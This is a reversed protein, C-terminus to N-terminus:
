SAADARQREREVRMKAAESEMRRGRDEARLLANAGCDAAARVIGVWQGVTFPEVKTVTPMVIARTGSESVAIVGWGKMEDHSEVDAKVKQALGDPAAIWFRHARERWHRNKSTDVSVRRVVTPEFDDPPQSFPAGGVIKPRRRWEHHVRDTGRYGDLDRDDPKHDCRIEVGDHTQIFWEVIRWEKCWDAYSCKIEVAELTYGRSSWLSIVLVDIKTGQRYSNIPAEYVHMFQSDPWRGTLRSRIDDANM